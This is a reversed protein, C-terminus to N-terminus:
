DLVFEEIYYLVDVKYEKAEKECQELFLVMEEHDLENLNM